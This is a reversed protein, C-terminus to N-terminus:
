DFRSQAVEFCFNHGDLRAQLASSIPIPVPLAEITLQGLESFSLGREVFLPFM